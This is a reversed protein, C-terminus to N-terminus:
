PQEVLEGCYPCTVVGVYERDLGFRMKCKVCRMKYGIYIKRSPTTELDKPLGIQSMYKKPNKM